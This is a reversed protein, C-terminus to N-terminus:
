ISKGAIVKAESRFEEAVFPNVQQQVFDDVYHDNSNTEGGALEVDDEHYRSETSVSFEYMVFIKDWSQTIM